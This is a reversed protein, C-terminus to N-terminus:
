VAITDPARVVTATLGGDEVTNNQTFPLIIKGQRVNIVVGFDAAPTKVLQNTVSTGSAERDHILDFCDDSVGYDAPTAAHDRGILHNIEYTDGTEWDVPSGYLPKVDVTNADVINTIEWVQNLHSVTTNRVLMGVETGNTTFAGTTDILQTTSTSTAGSGETVPKLTFQDAAISRSSYVYRHEEQVGTAVIRIYAAAPVEADIPGVVEIIEDGLGNFAGSAAILGGFLDKDIV